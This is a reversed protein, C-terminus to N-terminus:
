CQTKMHIFCACTSVVRVYSNEISDANFSQYLPSDQDAFTVQVSLFKYIFQEEIYERHIYLKFLLFNLGEGLWSPAYPQHKYVTEMTSLLHSGKIGGPHSVFASCTLELCLGLRIDAIHVSVIYILPVVCLMLESCCPKFWSGKPEQGFVQM